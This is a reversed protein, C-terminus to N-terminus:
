GKTKCKAFIENQRQSWGIFIGAYLMTYSVVQTSGSVIDKRKGAKCKLFPYKNVIQEVVHQYESTTPYATYRFMASAISLIFKTFANGNLIQKKLGEMVNQPYNLPLDFPMPLPKSSEAILTAKAKKKLHNFM